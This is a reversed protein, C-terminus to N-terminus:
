SMRISSLGGMFRFGLWDISKSQAVQRFNIFMSPHALNAFANPITIPGRLTLPAPAFGNWQVHVFGRRKWGM